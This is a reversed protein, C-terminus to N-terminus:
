NCVAIYVAFNSSWLWQLLRIEFQQCKTIWCYKDGQVICGMLHRIPGRFVLLLAILAIRSYVFCWFFSGYWLPQFSWHRTGCIAFISLAFLSLATNAPSTSLAQVQVLKTYWVVARKPALAGLRVITTYPASLWFHLLTAGRSRHRNSTNLHEPM